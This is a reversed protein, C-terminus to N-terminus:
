HNVTIANKEVRKLPLEYGRVKEEYIRNYDIDTPVGDDLFSMHSYHTYGDRWHELTIDQSKYKFDTRKVVHPRTIDNFLIGTYTSFNHWGVYGPKYVKINPIVRAERGIVWPIEFIGDKGTEMEIVRSTRRYSLGPLGHTRNWWAVVVAGEIPQRTQADVVRFTVACRFRYLDLTIFLIVGAVILIKRM